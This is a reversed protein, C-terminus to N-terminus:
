DHIQDFLAAPNVRIGTGSVSLEPEGPHLGKRDYTYALRAQPDLLWIHEVGMTVYDRLVREVQSLQDDSSMVEACLLPPTSIPHHSPASRRLLAVDCIRVRNPAVLLSIGLVGVTGTEQEFSSLASALQGKLSSHPYEGVNRPELFGNVFDAEVEFSTQLYQDLTM